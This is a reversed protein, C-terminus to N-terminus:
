NDGPGHDITHANQDGPAGEDPPVKNDRMASFVVSGVIGLALGLGVNDMAAGLAVGLAIGLGLYQPAGQM